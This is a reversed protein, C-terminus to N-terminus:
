VMRHSNFHDDTMGDQFHNQYFLDKIQIKTLIRLAMRWYLERPNYQDYSQGILQLNLNFRYGFGILIKLIKCWISSILWWCRRKLFIWRVCTCIPNPRWFTTIRLWPCVYCFLSRVNICFFRRTWLISRIRDVEVSLSSRLSDSDFWFCKRPRISRFEIAWRKILYIRSDKREAGTTLLAINWCCNMPFFM